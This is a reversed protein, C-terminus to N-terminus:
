TAEEWYRIQVPKNEETLNTIVVFWDKEKAKKSLYNMVISKRDVDFGEIVGDLIFFNINPLYTEKLAIQLIMAISLKESTSLTKVQQPVYEGTKEKLREVYLQYNNNLKINRFEKFKLDNILEDINANFQKVAKQRQEDARNKTFEIRKDIHDIWRSYIQNAVKPEVVHTGVEVSSEEIERKIDSIRVSIEASEGEKKTYIKNVEEDEPSIRRKIAELEERSKKIIQNYKEIDDECIKLQATPNGSKTALSKKEDGLGFIEEKLTDKHKKLKELEQSMRINELNLEKIENSIKDKNSRLDELKSVIEKLSINGDNCLPCIVDKQAGKLSSQATVFL